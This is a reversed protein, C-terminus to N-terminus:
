AADDNGNGHAEDHEIVTSFCSWTPPLRRICSGAVDDSTVHSIESLPDGLIDLTKSSSFRENWLPARRCRLDVVASRFRPSEQGCSMAFNCAKEPPHPKSFPCPDTETLCGNIRRTTATM